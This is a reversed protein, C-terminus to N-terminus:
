DEPLGIRVPRIVVTVNRSLDDYHGAAEVLAGNPSGPGTPWAELEALVLARVAEFQGTDGHNDAATVQEVVDAVPGEIRLSFSM